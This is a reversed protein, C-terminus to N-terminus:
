PGAQWSCRGLDFVVGVNVPVVVRSKAVARIWKLM